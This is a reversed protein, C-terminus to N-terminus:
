EGDVDYIKNGAKLIMNLHQTCYGHFTAKRKCYHRTGDL